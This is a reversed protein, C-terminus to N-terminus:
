AASEYVVRGTRLAEGYILGPHDALGGLQRESVVLIDLPMAIDRLARRLRVSEKRPDQVEDRTVVLIDLDSNDDATGRVYSGFLILRRPRALAALRAVARDVKEPTIEWPVSM